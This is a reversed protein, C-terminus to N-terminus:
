ERWAAVESPGIESGGLLFARASAPAKYVEDGYNFAFTVDSRRRWRVGEPLPTTALGARAALKAIGEALLEADPWGALYHRSGKSIWAPDGDDFRAAIEVGAGAEVRERWRTVQGAVEGSVREVLGPRLSEVETVRMPLLSALPGPPLNDPIAFNRTKSGSRPGFLTEGTARSFAALAADGIHPLTPALILGYGTLDAGPAVIDVDLALRRAAEYWRFTLDAYSFDAGQPQIRLIWAAEYDFVLAVQARSTAPLAGIAALEGGVEAAERGGPSLGSNDPLNLGAHMQEQAFPAQRWRFYSVVEAGHALAEWTFLRIQGSRPIANWPAWNVPGPQQEMVWWRGRGVGRYLDHHFPAIDPHSTDQWLDREAESFPFREVFGIPYSDWSAFDLDEGVDWHDFGDFFGMFNHTIWRGPSHERIIEVQVRDFARTQSSAFRRYDL